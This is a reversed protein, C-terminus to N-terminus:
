RILTLNRLKTELEQIRTLANNLILSDSASLNGGGGTSLTTGSAATLASQPAKLLADKALLRPSDTGNHTHKGVM